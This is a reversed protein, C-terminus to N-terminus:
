KIRIKYYFEFTAGAEKLWVELVHPKEPVHQNLIDFVLIPEDFKAEGPEFEFGSNNRYAKLLMTLFKNVLELSAKKNKILITYFGCTHPLCSYPYREIKENDKEFAWSGALEQQFAALAILDRRKQFLEKFTFQPLAVYLVFQEILKM